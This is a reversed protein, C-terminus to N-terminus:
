PKWDEFEKIVGERDCKPRFVARAKFGYEQNVEYDPIIFQFDWAPNTTAHTSNL